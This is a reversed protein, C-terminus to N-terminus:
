GDTKWRIEVIVDVEWGDLVEGPVCVCVQRSDFNAVLRTYKIWM